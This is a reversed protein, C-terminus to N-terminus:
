RAIAKQHSSLWKMAADRSSHEKSIIHNNSDIVVWKHHSGNYKIRYGDIHLVQLASAQMKLENLPHVTVTFQTVHTVLGWLIFSGDEWVMRVEHHEKFFKAVNVLYNPDLADNKTVGVPVIIEHRGTAHEANHRRNVFLAPVRKEAKKGKKPAEETVDQTEDEQQNEALNNSM